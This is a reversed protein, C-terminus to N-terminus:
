NRHARRGRGGDGGTGDGDGSPSPSATGTPEGPSPSAGAPESPSPAATPSPSHPAPAPATPTPVPPMQCCAPPRIAPARDEVPDRRPSTARQRAAPAGAPAPLARVVVPATATTRPARGGPVSVAGRGIGSNSQDSGPGAPAPAALPYPEAGAPKDAVLADIGTVVAFYGGAAGAVALAGFAVVAALRRARPVVEDGYTTRMGGTTGFGGFTSMGTSTVDQYRAEGGPAPAAKEADPDPRGLDYRVSRWAGAVENRARRWLTM